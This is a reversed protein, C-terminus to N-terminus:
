LMYSQLEIGHSQRVGYGVCPGVKDARMCGQDGGRTAVDRLACGGRGHGRICTLLGLAHPPGRVCPCAFGLRDVEQGALVTGQALQDPDPPGRCLGRGSGTHSCGGALRAARDDCVHTHMPPVGCSPPPLHTRTRTPPHVHAAPRPHTRPGLGHTSAPPTHPRHQTNALTPPVTWWTLRHQISATERTHPAGNPPRLHRRPLQRGPKARAGCRLQHLEYAEPFDPPTSLHVDHAQRPHPCPPAPSPSKNYHQLAKGTLASCVNMSGTAM